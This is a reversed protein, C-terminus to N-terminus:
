RGIEKKIDKKIEDKLERVDSTISALGVFFSRVSFRVVPDEKYAVAVAFIVILSAVFMNWILRPWSM